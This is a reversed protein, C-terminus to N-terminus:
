PAVTETPFGDGQSQQMQYRRQEASWLSKLSTIVAVIEDRDLRSGFAPM